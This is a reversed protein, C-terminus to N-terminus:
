NTFGAERPDDIVVAALGVVLPQMMQLSLSELLARPLVCTDACAANELNLRLHVTGDEVGTLAIDAGDAELLERVPALAATATARDIM